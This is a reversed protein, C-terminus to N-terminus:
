PGLAQLARALVLDDIMQHGGVVALRAAEDVVWAADSAPRRALRRAASDLDLTPAHPRDQLLASLMAAVGREDAYDMVVVHDFRGRRRLAPDIAELRNTTGIVLLGRHRAGEVLRLLTNVEDVTAGHGGTRQKGLADLEELLVVGPARAAAAEFAQTLQRSTEHLFMSGVASVSLDHLPWGLFKALKAAAYSKGCGPPGALLVGGPPPVGLRAYEAPRHLVDLVRERLLAQLAPQGPLVFGSPAPAAGGVGGGGEGRSAELVGAVTEVDLRPNLAAIRVPTLGADRVGGSLAAVLVARRDENEDLGTALALPLEPVFLASGWAAQPNRRHMAGLADGLARAEGPGLAPSRMALGQVTVPRDSTPLLLCLLEGAEALAPAAARLAEIEAPWWAPEDGPRLLLAVRAGGGTGCVQWSPGGDLLRASAAGGPLTTGIPLWPFGTM